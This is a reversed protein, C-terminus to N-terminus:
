IMVTQVRMVNRAISLKMRLIGLESGVKRAHEMHENLQRRWKNRDQVLLENDIDM